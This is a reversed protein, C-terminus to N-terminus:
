VLQSLTAEGCAGIRHEASWEPRNAGRVADDRSAFTPLAQDLRCLHLAEACSASLGTLRLAGEHQLVRKQLMVLQGMLRSPMLDVQDMELVIRYIFHRSAASWLREAVDSPDGTGPNLRVFLWDPGRDVKIEWRSKDVMVRCEWFSAGCKSDFRGRLTTFEM